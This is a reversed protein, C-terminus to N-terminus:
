APSKGLRYSVNIKFMRTKFKQRDDNTFQEATSTRTGVRDTNFIDIISATAVARHNKLLERKLSLDVSGTSRTKGQPVVKPGEYVGSLQATFGAPLRSDSSLKVFWGPGNSNLASEVATASIHTDFFNGNLTLSEWPTPSGKLLLEAGYTNNYGANIYSTVLTDKGSPATFTTIPRVRNRLYATASFTLWGATRNYGLEFLNTYEPRLTPNGRVVNQPNSYDVRPSVQDYDPREVRRSYNLHLDSNQDLKQTLLISPYLGPNHYTVGGNSDALVGTYHYQEFRLGAVYSFGGFHDTYNVYAAYNPDTYHFDYSAYPDRQYKGTATNFDEMDTFNHDKHLTAKVGAELLGKGGRIPDAYDSTLTITHAHIDNNYQQLIPSGSSAGQLTQYQQLYSGSTPGEFQELSAGATLKEGQKEFSHNFDLNLHSFRFIDSESTHRQALSDTIGNISGYTIGGDTNTHFNGRGIDGSLTLTSHQIGLFDLVFKGKRFPGSTISHLKSQVTNGGALDTYNDTENDEQRHGHQTYNLNLRFLGKSANLDGYATYEPITSWNANISGYLGTRRNKKMIINVIGSSGQADYKATPNTVIEVSEVQDAPIQDLTLNTRRGDILITPNGNRLTLKGSPTVTVGPIQRFVEAVTGGKASLSAAVNYVKKDPAITLARRGSSVTAEDLAKYHLSDSLTHRTTDIPQKTNQANAIFGFLSFLAVTISTRNSFTM